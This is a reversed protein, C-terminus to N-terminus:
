YGRSRARAPAAPVSWPPSRAPLPARPGARQAGRGRPRPVRLQRGGAPGACPGPRAGGRRCGFRREHAGCSTILTAPRAGRLDARRRGSGRQRFSVAPRTRAVAWVARAGAATRDARGAALARRLRAARRDHRSRARHRDDRVAGARVRVPIRDAPHGDNRLSVARRGAGAHRGPRARAPPRDAHAIRAPHRSFAREAARAIALSRADAIQAGRGILIMFVILIPVTMLLIAGPVPDIAFVWGLVALPVVCALVLQPLYGAFWSELADVGQVAAAALDGTRMDAPRGDPCVILLQRALRSRLESM